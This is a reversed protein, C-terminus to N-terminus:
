RRNLLAISALILLVGVSEAIGFPVALLVTSFFVASVPEISCLIGVTSPRIYKLSELYSWFAIVTGFLVVYLFVLLAAADVDGCFDWPAHFFMLLIGGLLMGWGIVLPSRFHELLWKPQITYVAACFASAVGWFLALPPIALMSFSGRTVILFTGVFALLVCCIEHLSPLCRSKLASWLVVIIPMLYQLVSAAAANGYEISSFYTYQVGLMGFISFILLHKAAPRNRWLSFINELSKAADLLLLLVGALSMRMMVLWETSFGREQLLFQAAVGSGGWLLAGLAVLLIGKTHPKM